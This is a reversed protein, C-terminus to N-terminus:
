QLYFRLLIWDGTRLFLGENPEHEKMDSARENRVCKGNMM